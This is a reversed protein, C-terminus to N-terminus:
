GNGGVEEIVYLRNGRLLCKYQGGERLSPGLSVISERPYEYVGELPNSPDVLLVMGRDFGSVMLVRYDGSVVSYNNRWLDEPTMSVEQGSSADVMYARGGAIFKFVYERGGISVIDGMRLDPIRVSITLRTKAKGDSRRGTVKYAEAVRALFAARAKSAIARASAQDAVHLDLGERKRDISLISSRLGKDLRELFAELAGLLDESLRASASRFQIIAEHGTKARRKFCKPCLGLGVRVEVIRDERLVLGSSKGNIRLLVKFVGPGWPGEVVEVDEIWAEEISRSPKLRSLYYYYAFERVTEWLSGGQIWSGQLLYSGCDRCVTVSSRSPISSVGYERLYCEACLGGVSQGRELPRGCGPCIRDSM